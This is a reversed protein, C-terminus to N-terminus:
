QTISAAGLVQAWVEASYFIPGVNFAAHLPFHKFITRYLLTAQMLALDPGPHMGDSALWRLDSNTQLGQRFSESVAVYAVDLQSALNRESAELARSAQPLQQYTGLIIPVTRAQRARAVLEEAAAEAQRQAVPGFLGQLDGGREQLVVFDYQKQALAASVAGDEAWQTLTAGGRAFTRHKCTRENVRCVSAFVEPLQAVYTLSNGVFLVSV